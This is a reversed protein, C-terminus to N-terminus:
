QISKPEEMMLVGTLWSTVSIQSMGPRPSWWSAPPLLYLTKIQEDCVCLKQALSSELLAPLVKGTCTILLQTTSSPVFSLFFLHQCSMKPFSGRQQSSLSNRFGFGVTCVLLPQTLGNIGIDSVESDCIM